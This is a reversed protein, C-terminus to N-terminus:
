LRREEVNYWDLDGHIDTFSVYLIPRPHLRDELCESRLTRSVRLRLNQEIQHGTMTFFATCHLLLFQGSKAKHKLPMVGKSHM